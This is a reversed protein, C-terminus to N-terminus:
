VIQKRKRLLTEVLPRTYKEAPDISRDDDERYYEGADFAYYCEWAIDPFEFYKSYYENSIWFTYINNMICDGYEYDMEKNWYKLGTELSLTEILETPFEKPNNLIDAVQNGSLIAKSLEALIKETNSNLRTVKKIRLALTKEFQV